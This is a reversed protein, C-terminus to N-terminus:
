SQASIHAAATTTLTWGIIERIADHLAENFAAVIAPVDNERPRANAVVTRTAITSRDAVKVLMAGLEIHVTPLDQGSTYDAEFHRLDLRLEVDGRIALTDRSVATVCGTRQFSEVLLAQVMSPAADTWNANAFYDFGLVNRRLAIRRTDLAASASPRDILFQLDVRPWGGPFTTLATLSYLSPGPGGGGGLIGSCGAPLLALTAIVLRRTPHTM